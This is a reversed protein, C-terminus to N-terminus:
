IQDILFKRQYYGRATDLMSERIKELEDLRQKLFAPGPTSTGQSVGDISISVSNHPFLIPGLISLLKYAAVVEILGAIMAPIKGEEFGALYKVRVAGPFAGQANAIAWFASGSMASVIFGSLTTGFAPVLQLIGDQPEVHIFEKPIDIIAGNVNAPDATNDEDENSFRLQFSTVKIVNPHRVKLYAYSHTWMERDYDLRESFETPTIYIDLLHEVESIAEDIFGQIQEDSVAEGTFSSKLPIGFLSRQRMSTPTPAPKYRSPQNNAETAWYPFSTRVPTSPKAM